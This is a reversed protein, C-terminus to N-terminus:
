VFKAFHYCAAARRYAHGVSLASGVAKIEEARARHKAGLDSWLDIWDMWTPALAKVSEFDRYEVGGFIM